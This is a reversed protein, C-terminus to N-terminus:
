IILSSKYVLQVLGVIKCATVSLHIAHLKKGRLFNDSFPFHFIKNDYIFTHLIYIINFLNHIFTSMCYTHSFSFGFLVYKM